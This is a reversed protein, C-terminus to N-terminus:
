APFALSVSDSNQGYGGDVRSVCTPYRGRWLRPCRYRSGRPLTGARPRCPGQIIKGGTYTKLFCPIHPSQLLDSFARPSPSVAVLPNTPLPHPKCTNDTVKFDSWKINLPKLKEEIEPIYEEPLSAARHCAHNKSTGILLIKHSLDHPPLGRSKWSLSSSFSPRSELELAEIRLDHATCSQIVWRAVRM